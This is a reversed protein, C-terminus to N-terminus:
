KSSLDVVKAKSANKRVSEIGNACGAKGKYGESRAIIEGNAAKLVFYFQGDKQKLIEFKGAM